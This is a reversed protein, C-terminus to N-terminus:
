AAQHIIKKVIKKLSWKGQQNIMRTYMGRSPLMRLKTSLIWKFVTVRVFHEMLSILVSRSGPAGPQGPVGPVEWGSSVPILRASLIMGM